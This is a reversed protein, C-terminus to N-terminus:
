AGEDGRTGRSVDGEETEGPLRYLVVLLACGLAGLLLRLALRDVMVISVTFSVVVLAYAKRKAGRPVSRRERWQVLLPGLRSELLRRHLRPSSRAFCAAALLVFPTTPVLPLVVGLIGLAIAVWGAGILVVRPLAPWRRVEAGQERERSEGTDPLSLSRAGLRRAEGLEPAQPMGPHYAVPGAPTAAEPRRRGPHFFSISGATCSSM